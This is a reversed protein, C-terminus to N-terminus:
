SVRRIEKLTRFIKISGYDGEFVGVSRTAKVGISCLYLLFDEDPVPVTEATLYELGLREGVERVLRSEKSIAELINPNSWAWQWIQDEASYSGLVQANAELRSGDGFALQLIGTEQDFGWEEASGLNWVEELAAQKVGFEECAEGLFRDAEPSLKDGSEDQPEPKEKRRFSDFLGM